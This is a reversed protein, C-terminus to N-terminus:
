PRLEVPHGGSEHIHPGPPSRELINDKGGVPCQGCRHLAVAEDGVRGANGLMDLEEVLEYGKTQYQGGFSSPYSRKQIENTSFSTAAIGAGTQVKVQHIESGLSSLFLQEIRRFDM